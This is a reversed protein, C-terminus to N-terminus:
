SRTRDIVCSCGEHSCHFHFPKYEPNPIEVIEGDRIEWTAAILERHEGSTHGCGNPCPRAAAADLAAAQRFAYGARPM